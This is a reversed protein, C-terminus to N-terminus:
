NDTILMWFVKESDSVENWWDKTESKRLNLIKQILSKEYFTTLWQILEIKTNALKNVYNLNM